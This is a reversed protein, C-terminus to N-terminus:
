PNSVLAISLPTYYHSFIKLSQLIQLCNLSLKLNQADLNITLAVSFRLHNRPAPPFPATQKFYHPRNIQPLTTPPIYTVLYPRGCHSVPYPIQRCHLLCLNLGQTLFIGRSPFPLGSWCEQRFFGMSLSARHAGTWPIPNCLTTCSQACLSM